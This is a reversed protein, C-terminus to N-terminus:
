KIEETWIASLHWKFGFEEDTHSLILPFEKTPYVYMWKLSQDAAEMKVSELVIERDNMLVPYMYYGTEVDAEKLLFRTSGSQSLEERIEVKEISDLYNMEDETPEYVFHQMPFIASGSALIANLSTKSLCFPNGQNMFITSEGNGPDPIVFDNPMKMVSDPITLIGRYQADDQGYLCAYEYYEYKFVWENETRELLEFVLDRGCGFEELAYYLRLGKKWEFLDHKMQVHVPVTKRISKLEINVGNHMKVIMPARPQDLIQIEMKGTRSNGSSSLVKIFTSKDYVMLPIQHISDLRLEVTDRYSPIIMTKGNTKLEEFGKQSLMMVTKHKLSSHGPSLYQDFIRANAVADSNLQVTGETRESNSASFQFGCSDGIYNLKLKLMYENGANSIEYTLLSGKELLSSKSLDKRSKCASIAMAFVVIFSIKSWRLM